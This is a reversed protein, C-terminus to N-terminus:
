LSVPCLIYFSIVPTFSTTARQDETRHKALDGLHHLCYSPISVVVCGSRLDGFSRGLESEFGVGLCKSRKVGAQHCTRMKVGSSHAEGELQWADTFIM